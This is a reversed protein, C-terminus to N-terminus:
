ILKVAGLQSEQNKGIELCSSHLVAPLQVWVSQQYFPSFYTFTIDVTSCVDSFTIEKLIEYTIYHYKLM